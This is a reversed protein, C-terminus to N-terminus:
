ISRAPTTPEGRKRFILALAWNSAIMQFAIAGGIFARFLEFNESVAGEDGPRYVLSFLWLVTFAAVAPLDNLRVSAHFDESIDENKSECEMRWDFILFSLVGVLILSLQLKFSGGTFSIYTAGGFVGISLIMLPGILGIFWEKKLNGNVFFRPPVFFGVVYFILNYATTSVLAGVEWYHWFKWTHGAPGVILHGLLGFFVVFIFIVIWAAFAWQKGLQKWAFM